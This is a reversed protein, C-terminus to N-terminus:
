PFLYRGGGLQEDNGHRHDFRCHKGQLRFISDAISAKYASFAATPTQLTAPTLAKAAAQLAALSSKLTGLASIKSQYSTQQAQLKTLPQKEVSMLGTIISEVQLGSGIGASSITAM